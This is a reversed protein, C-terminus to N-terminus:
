HRDCREQYWREFEARGREKMAAVSALRRREVEGDPLSSFGGRRFRHEAPPDFRWSANNDQACQKCWPFTQLSGYSRLM